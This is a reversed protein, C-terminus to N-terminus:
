GSVTDWIEDTLMLEVLVNIYRKGERFPRDTGGAKGGRSLVLVVGVSGGGESAAGARRDSEGFEDFWVGQFACPWPEVDTREDGMAWGMVM